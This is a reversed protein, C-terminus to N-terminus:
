ITHGPSARHLRALELLEAVSRARLLMPWRGHVDTDLTWGATAAYSDSLWGFVEDVGTRHEALWVDVDRGDHLLQRGLSAAVLDWLRPDIVVNVGLRQALEDYVHYATRPLGETMATRRWKRSIYGALSDVDPGWWRLLRGAVAM